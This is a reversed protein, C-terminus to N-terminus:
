LRQIATLNPKLGADSAAKLQLLRIRERVTLTDVSDSLLDECDM